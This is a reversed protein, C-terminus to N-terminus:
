CVKPLCNVVHENVFDQLQHRYFGLGLQKLNVIVETYWYDPIKRLEAESAHGKIGVVRPRDDPVKILLTMLNHDKASILESKFRGDTILTLEARGSVLLDKCEKHAFNFWVEPDIARGFETGLTQLMVRPTLTVKACYTDQYLKDLWVTFHVKAQNNGPFYKSLWANITDTDWRVRAWEEKSDFRHDPANRSESPGYLQDDTFKFLTSGLEKLPTAQAVTAVNPLLEKILTAATDKGSNAGGCIMIIPSTKM